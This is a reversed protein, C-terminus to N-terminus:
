RHAQEVGAAPARDPGGTVFNEAETADEDYMREIEAAFREHVVSRRVKLTPTMLDNAVSLRDPILTFKKVTSWPDVGRNARDVLQGYRETVKPHRLLEELPIDLRIGRSRAFVRLAEPEPFLLATCYKQGNGVVVAQEVLPHSTLRNEILQPTVYKGTSLKFLDKKRDTIRLFGDDTIEGIDGTHFWGDEDIVEHTKAEDKYYGMMVHPGRTLIEGDDAIRVEVGPIPVGVTGARNRDPRNFAIVPSTETLGYGQLVRVGAAAFLNALDPSLAAGGSIVYKVRGGMAERWKRFVIRDALALQLRYWGSPTRGMEYREALRLSWNAVRRQLGKMETIRKLISGYVKELVRPVTAFVTPRVDKLDHRLDDPTSFYMSSGHYLFGYHLTRAFVHSLPLFSLGVEGDPGSRYDPLGSFATLANHSINQHSLMVGKPTGTTGSTYIITALDEPDIAGTLEGPAGPHEERRRRGRQRLRQLSLLQVGGLRNTIDPESITEVVVVHRVRSLRPLLDMAVRLGDANSIVLVKSESHETVFAIQDPAHTLYIPVDVLGAILCGMDVTCFHVDSEMFLAVRDGRELGLDLLGLAIEEATDRFAELSLPQWREGARQNFARPNDYRRCAEYLLAPLTKGLVSTGSGPPATHIQGPM